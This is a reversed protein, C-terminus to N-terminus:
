EDLTQCLLFTWWGRRMLCIILVCAIVWNYRFVYDWPFFLLYYFGVQSVCFRQYSCLSGSTYPFSSLLSHLHFILVQFVASSPSVLSYSTRVAGSSDTAQVAKVLKRQIEFTSPSSEQIDGSFQKAKWEKGSKRLVFTFVGMAKERIQVARVSISKYNSTSSKQKNNRLVRISKQLHITRKM